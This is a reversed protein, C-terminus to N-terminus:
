RITEKEYQEQESIKESTREKENFLKSFRKRMCDFSIIKNEIPDYSELWPSQHQSITILDRASIEATMDIVVDILKGSMEDINVDGYDHKTLCTDTYSNVSPIGNGGFRKYVRYVSPVVPGYTWAEMNDKFCFHNTNKVFIAQVFYLIKQLKLNTIFINEDHCKNIIYMAIDNADYLNIKNM